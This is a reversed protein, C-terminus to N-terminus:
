KVLYLDLLNVLTHSTLFTVGADNICTGTVEYSSGDTNM